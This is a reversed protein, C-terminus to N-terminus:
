RKQFVLSLIFLIMGALVITAGAATGWYFSCLLGSVGSFFSLLMAGLVYQFTNSAINRSAAAPLILLSNIVLLGMWPISLTVVVAVLLCFAAETQWVKIARSRALCHSATLLFVKNFFVFAAALVLILLLALKELEGASISLMDGILYRSYKAFNGGQSLLVIGLAVCFAMALGIVTDTSAGSRRRLYSVSIALLSAFAIMAWSPDSLGLIAGLGIGALAAHGIAESFFAMQNSVVLCGLLAFLPSTLLVALLAHQMFSYQAWAFPLQAVLSCWLNM